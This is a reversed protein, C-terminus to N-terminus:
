TEIDIVGPWLISTHWSAWSWSPAKNGSIRIKLPRSPYWSLGYLLDHSWLGSVYLPTHLASGDRSTKGAKEKEKSLLVQFERAVGAVAALKDSAKTLRLETFIKIAMYWRGLTTAEFQNPIKKSFSKM